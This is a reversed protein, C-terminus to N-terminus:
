RGAWPGPFTCYGESSHLSWRPSSHKPCDGCPRWMINMRSVRYASFHVTGFTIAMGLCYAVIASRATFLPSLRFDIDFSSIIWNMVAIMVTSLAWGLLVGVAGAVLAYATGEFLFMQVLHSRRAGVARAMGMEPRRAAALMVFILFILLVM